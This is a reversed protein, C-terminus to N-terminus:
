FVAFEHPYEAAPFGTDPALLASGLGSFCVRDSSALLLGAKSVPQCAGPHVSRRDLATALTAKMATSGIRSTRLPM